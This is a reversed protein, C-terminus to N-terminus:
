RTTIKTIKGADWLFIDGCVNKWCFNVGFCYINEIKFKGKKKKQLFHMALFTDTRTQLRIVSFLLKNQETFCRAVCVTNNSSFIVEMWASLLFSFTMLSKNPVKQFDCFTIGLLFSWDTRVAIILKQLVRFIALGCFSSERSDHCM